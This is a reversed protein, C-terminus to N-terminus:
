NSIKACNNFRVKKSSKSVDKDNMSKVISWDIYINNDKHHLAIFGKENVKSLVYKMCTVPKYRANGYVVLPVTYILNFYGRNDREEIRKFVDYLLTRYIQHDRHKRDVYKRYLDNISYVSHSEIQESNREM